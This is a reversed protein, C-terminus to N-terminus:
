KSKKESQNNPKFRITNVVLTGILDFSQAYSSSYRSVQINACCNFLNDLDDERAEICGYNLSSSFANRYNKMEVRNNSQKLPVRVQVLKKLKNCCPVNFYVKLVKLRRIKM